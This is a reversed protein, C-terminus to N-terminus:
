TVKLTLAELLHEVSVRGQSLCCGNICKDIHPQEWGLRYILNYNNVLGRTEEKSLYGTNTSDLNYLGRALHKFRVFWPEDDDRTKAAPKPVSRKVKHERAMVALEARQMDNIGSAQHHGPPPAQLNTPPSHTPSPSDYFTIEREVATPSRVGLRGLPKRTEWPPPGPEQPLGPSGAKHNTKPFGDDRQKPWTNPRGADPNAAPELGQAALPKVRGLFELFSPWSYQNDGTRCKNLVKAMLSGQVPIRHKFCVEQVKEMTLVGQGKTDREVFDKKMAHLDTPEQNGQVYQQEVLMLLKADQRDSFVQQPTKALDAPGNEVGTSQTQEQGGFQQSLKELLYENSERHKKRQDHHHQHKQKHTNKKDTEYKAIQQDLDVEDAPPLDPANVFRNVSEQLLTEAEATGLQARALYQILREYNVLDPNDDKGFSSFLLRMTNTPLPLHHKLAIMNAQPQSVYGCLKRDYEALDKYMDQFKYPDYDRLLDQLQETLSVEPHGLQFTPSPSPSLSPSSTPSSKRQHWSHRTTPSLSNPSPIPPLVTHSGPLSNFRGRTVHIHSNSKDAPATQSHTIRERKESYEVQHKNNNYEQYPPQVEMPPTGNPGQQLPPLSRQSNSASSPPSDVAIEIQKGGIIRINRKPQVDTGFPASRAASEAKGRHSTM